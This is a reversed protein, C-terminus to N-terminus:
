VFDKLLNFPQESGGKMENEELFGNWNISLQKDYFKINSPLLFITFMVVPIVHYICKM